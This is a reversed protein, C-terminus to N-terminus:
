HSFLVARTTQTLLARTFGGFVWEQFRNHGYAGAVILDAQQREAVHLLQEAAPTRHESIEAKISAKISHRLLYAAVDELRARSAPAAASDECIEVLQVVEAKLLFPLADTVARRAERTDKWSVLVSEVDLRSVDPGVVLVPRGTQLILVGPLAVNYDSGGHRHSQSAIVLDAARAQAAVEALPFQIKGRWDCGERVEGAATRFKEETRKLDEEVAAMQAAILPGAAYSDGYGDGYGGYGYYGGFATPSWLEGGVGILKANFQNALHVALALRPDPSPDAEVHVLLAAYTM